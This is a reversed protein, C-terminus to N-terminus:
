MHECSPGFLSLVNSCIVLTLLVHQSLGIESLLFTWNTLSRNINNSYKSSINSSEERNRKHL